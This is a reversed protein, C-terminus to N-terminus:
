GRRKRWPGCSRHFFIMLEIWGHKGVVFAAYTTKPGTTVGLDRGHTIEENVEGLEMHGVLATDWHNTLPVRTPCLEEITFLKVPVQSELVM